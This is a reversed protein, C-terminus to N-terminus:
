KEKYKKLEKELKEIEKKLEVMKLERGVTLRQFRELEEVREQIEKTRERIIEERREALERLERTRAAVKIELITKAEYETKITRILTYPCIEGELNFKIVETPNM